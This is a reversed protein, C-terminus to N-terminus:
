NIYITNQRWKKGEGIRMYINGFDGQSKPYEIQPNQIKPVCELKGKLLQTQQLIDMFCRFDKIIPKQLLKSGLYEDGELIAIEQADHFLSVLTSPNGRTHEYLWSIIGDTIESETSLMNIHSCYAAYRLFSM